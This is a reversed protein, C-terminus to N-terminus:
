IDNYYSNLPVLLFIIIVFFIFLRLEVKTSSRSKM